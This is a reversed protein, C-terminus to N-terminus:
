PVEVVVEAFESGNDHFDFAQVRYTVPGSPAANDIFSVQNEESGGGIYQVGGGADVYSVSYAAFEIDDFSPEWELLVGEDVIAATLGVIPTPPTVDASTLAETWRPETTVDDALDAVLVYTLFTNSPLDERDIFGFELGEYVREAGEISGSAIAEYDAEATPLRYLRYTEAGEVPSWVVEVQSADMFTRAVWNTLSVPETNQPAREVPEAPEVERREIFATTTTTDIGLVTGDDLVIGDSTDGLPGASSEDSSCGAAVLAIAGLLVLLRRARMAM